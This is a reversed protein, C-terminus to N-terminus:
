NLNFKVKKILSDIRIKISFENSVGVDNISIKMNKESM